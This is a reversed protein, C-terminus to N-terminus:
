DMQDQHVLLGKRVMKVQLAKQDQQVKTAKNGMKVQHVRQVQLAQSVQNELLVRLDLLEQNVTKVQIVMQARQDKPVKHAQLALRVLHVKRGLRAHGVRDQLQLWKLDEPQELHEKSALNEQYVLNEMQELIELHDQHDQHVLITKSM